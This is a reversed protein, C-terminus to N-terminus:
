EQRAAPKTGPVDSAEVGVSVQRDGVALFVHDNPAALVDGRFFDFVNEHEVRTDHFRSRDAHVVLTQAFPDGDEDLQALTTRDVQELNSLVEDGGPDGLLLRGFM